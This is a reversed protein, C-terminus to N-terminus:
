GDRQAIFAASWTESSVGNETMWEVLSLPKLGTYQMFLRLEPQFFYRM